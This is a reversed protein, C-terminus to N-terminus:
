ATPALRNCFYPLCKFGGADFEDVFVAATGTDPEPLWQPPPASSRAREHGWLACARPELDGM